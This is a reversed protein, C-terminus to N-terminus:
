GQSILLPSHTEFKNTFLADKILFCFYGRQAPRCPSVALFSCNRVWWAKVLQTVYLIHTGESNRILPHWFYFMQVLKDRNRLCFSASSQSPSLEQMERSCTHLELRLRHSPPPAWGKVKEAVPQQYYGPWMTIAALWMEGWFSCGLWLLDQLSRKDPLPTASAVEIRKILWM